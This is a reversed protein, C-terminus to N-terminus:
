KNRTLDDLKWILIDSEPTGVALYKGDPSFDLTSIELKPGRYKWVIEGTEFNRLWVTHDEACSALYKGDPSFKCQQMGKQGEFTKIITESEIDWIKILSGGASFLYKDNNMFKLSYASHQKTKLYHLIKLSELDWIILENKWSGSALFKGNDSLVINNVPGKHGFLTDIFTFSNMDLIRILGDTSGTLLTNGDDMFAGPGLSNPFKHDLEPIMGKMIIDKPEVTIRKILKGTEVEWIIMSADMSGSILFKDDPSFKAGWVNDEHGILVHKVTFTNMDWIRVTNDWAGSALLNGTKNYSIGNIKHLHGKLIKFPEINDSQGHCYISGLFLIYILIYKRM